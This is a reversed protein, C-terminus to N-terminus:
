ATAVVVLKLEVSSTKSQLALADDVTVDVLTCLDGEDDYYKMVFTKQSDWGYATSIVKQLDDVFYRHGPINIPLRRIDGQFDVKVIKQILPPETIASYVMGLRSVTAPSWRSCDKEFIIIRMKPTMLLEEGSSLCLKKNDDLVTHLHEMAVGDLPTTVCINVSSTKKIAAKFAVTFAGNVEFLGAADGQVIISESKMAADIAVITADVDCDGVVCIGHRIQQVSDVMRAVGQVTSCMLDEQIKADVGFAKNIEAIAIGKDKETLHTHLRSALCDAM